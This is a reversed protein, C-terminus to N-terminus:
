NNLSCHILIATHTYHVTVARM